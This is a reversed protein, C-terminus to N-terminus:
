CCVSHAELCLLQLMYIYVRTCLMKTPIMCKSADTQKVCLSGRCVSVCCSDIPEFHLADMDATFGPAAPRGTANDGGPDM